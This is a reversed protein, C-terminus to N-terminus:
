VERAVSSLARLRLVERNADSGTVGLVGREILICDRGTDLAPWFIKFGARFFVIAAGDSIEVETFFLGKKM